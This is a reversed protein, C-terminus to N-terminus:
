RLVAKEKFFTTVLRTNHQTAKDKKRKEKRVDLYETIYTGRSLQCLVLFYPLPIRTCVHIYM